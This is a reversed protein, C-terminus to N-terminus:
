LSQQAFIELRTFPRLNLAGSRSDVAASASYVALDM